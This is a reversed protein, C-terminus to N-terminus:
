NKHRLKRVYSIPHITFIVLLTTLMLPHLIHFARM